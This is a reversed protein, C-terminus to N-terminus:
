TISVDVDLEKADVVDDLYNKCRGICNELTEEVAQKEKVVGISRKLPEGRVRGGRSRYLKAKCRYSGGQFEIRTSIRYKDGKREITEFDTHLLESEMEM